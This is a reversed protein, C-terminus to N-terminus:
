LGHRLDSQRGWPAKEWHDPDLQTRHVFVDDNYGDRTVFAYSAHVRVVSGSFHWRVGDKDIFGRAERKLKNDAPSEKLFRFVQRAEEIEGTLYLERAYWFQAELRGTAKPLHSGFTTYHM